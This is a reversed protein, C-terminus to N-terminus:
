NKRLVGAPDISVARSVPIWAALAAVAVLTVTAFVLTVPDRSELGYLLPAVFRSLTVAAFLGLVLGAAVFLAIRRLILSVVTASRGGLAIRIGIESRRRTVAYSTVGYLGIASLLVAIAGFFGALRAVLREQAVAAALDAELPKFSYVLRSDVARLAASLGPVLDALDRTTRVSV